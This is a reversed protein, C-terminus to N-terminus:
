VGGGGGRCCGGGRWNQPPPGWGNFQLASIEILAIKADVPPNTFDACRARLEAFHNGGPATFLDSRGGPGGLMGTGLQMTIISSPSANRKSSTSSSIRYTNRLIKSRGSTCVVACWLIPMCMTFMM